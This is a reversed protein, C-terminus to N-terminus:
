EKDKDFDAPVDMIVLPKKEKRNAGSFFKEVKVKRQLQMMGYLISESRPPCGPIFVDVPVIEEIGRVVHYSSKFLGGSQGLQIISTTGGPVPSKVQRNRGGIKRVHAM